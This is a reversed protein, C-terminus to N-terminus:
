LTGRPLVTIAGAMGPHVLCHYHYVGPKAFTLTFPTAVFQRGHASVYNGALHDIGSNAVGGTYVGGPPLVPTVIRPNLALIPGHADHGVPVLLPTARPDIGFSVTHFLVGGSRWTVRDGAQVTLHDPAFGDNADPVAGTGAQITWAGSDPQPRPVVTIVGDMDEAGPVGSHLLCDYSYTGVHPFTVACSQATPAGAPGILGCNLVRTAAGGDTEVLPGRASPFAVAPNFVVMTKGDVVRHLLQNRPDELPRLLRDPGFTVTHPENASNDTFIVTDGPHITLHRPFFQNVSETSGNGVPLAQSVGAIVRWIRPAPTLAAFPQAAARAHPSGGAPLAAVGAALLAAAGCFALAERIPTRTM